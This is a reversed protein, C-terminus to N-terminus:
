FRRVNQLLFMQMMVIRTLADHSKFDRDNNMEFILPHINKGAKAYKSNYDIISNNLAAYVDNAGPVDSIFQHFDTLGIM